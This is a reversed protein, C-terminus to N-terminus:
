MAGHSITEECLLLGTVAAPVYLCGEGSDIHWLCLSHSNEPGTLETVLNEEQEPSDNSHNQLEKAIDHIKTAKERNRLSGM